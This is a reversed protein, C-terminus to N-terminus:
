KVGQIMPADRINIDEITGRNKLRFIKCFTKCDLVIEQGQVETQMYKEEENNVVKKFIKSNNYFELVDLTSLGSPAASLFKFIHSSKLMGLILKREPKSSIVAPVYKKVLFAGWNMKHSPNWDSPTFNGLLRKNLVKLEKGGQKEAPASSAAKPNKTTVKKPAM